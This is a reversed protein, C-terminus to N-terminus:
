LKAKSAEGEGGLDEGEWVAELISMRYGELRKVGVFRFRGDVSEFLSKFDAESREQANLLTLVVLDMTRLVREEGMGVEQGPEPLCYDNILVRAGNKLAPILSRLIKAAYKDSHNHMIWRFLYLDAGKVSQPTTFDHAQFTIRDALESPVPKASAITNPLDQVIFSLNPYNKALEISVHGHSGGLDVITACQANLSAWDYGNILYSLEYGEGELLSKMAGSFRTARKTKNLTPFMPEINTTGNAKCFGTQMMDDAEPHQKLAPITQAAAPWMDEVCFGVWDEMAQDTALLRSAATHAVLGPSPEYFIRNTMAHRLFRRINLESLGAKSAFTSFPIPTHLPVLKALKYHYIAHLSLSNNHDWAMWRLSESPGAVLEGLEKTARMVEERVKKLEGSVMPFSPPADVDFSPEPLGNAKIYSDLKKTEQSIIQALEVLKSTSAASKPVPSSPTQFPAEKAVPSTTSNYRKSQRSDDLGLNSNRAFPLDWSGLRLRNGIVRLKVM